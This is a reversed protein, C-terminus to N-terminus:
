ERLSILDTEPERLNLADFAYLCALSYNNVTVEDVEDWDWNLAQHHHGMEHWLGWAASSANAPDM